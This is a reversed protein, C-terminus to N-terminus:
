IKLYGGSIAAIKTNEVLEHSLREPNTSVGWMGALNNSTRGSHLVAYAGCIMAKYSCSPGSLWSHKSYSQDTVINSSAIM